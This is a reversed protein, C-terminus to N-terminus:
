GMGFFVVCNAGRKLDIQKGGGKINVIRNM